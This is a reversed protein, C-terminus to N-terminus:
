YGGFCSSSFSAYIWTSTFYTLCYAGSSSTIPENSYPSSYFSITNSSPYNLCYLIANLEPIGLDAINVCSFYSRGDLPEAFFILLASSLNNFIFYFSSCSMMLEEEM